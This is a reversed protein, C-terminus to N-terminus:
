KEVFLINITTENPIVHSKRFVEGKVNTHSFLIKNLSVPYSEFM